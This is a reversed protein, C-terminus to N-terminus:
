GCPWLPPSPSPLGAILNVAAFTQFRQLARFFTASLAPLANVPDPGARRYRVCQLVIESLESLPLRDSQDPRGGPFLLCRLGMQDALARAGRQSGPRYCSHLPPATRSQDFVSTAAVLSTAIAWQGYGSPGLTRIFSATASYQPVNLLLPQGM